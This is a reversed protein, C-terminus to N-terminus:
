NNEAVVADWDIMGDLRESKIHQALSVGASPWTGGVDAFKKEGEKRMQSYISATKLAYAQKGPNINHEQALATWITEMKTFGQIARRFEQSFKLRKKGASWIKYPAHNRLIQRYDRDKSRFAGHQPAQVILRAWDSISRRQVSFQQVSNNPYVIPANTNFKPSLQPRLFRCYNGGGLAAFDLVAKFSRFLYLYM